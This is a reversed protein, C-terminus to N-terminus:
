KWPVLDIINAGEPVTSPETVPILRILDGEVLSVLFLKRDPRRVYDGHVCYYDKDKPRLTEPWDKFFYTDLTM